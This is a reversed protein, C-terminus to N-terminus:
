NQNKIFYLRNALAQRKSQQESRKKEYEKQEEYDGSFEAWDAEISRLKSDAAALQVELSMIAEEKGITQVTRKDNERIQNIADLRQQEQSKTSEIIKRNIEIQRERVVFERYLYYLGIPILLYFFPEM